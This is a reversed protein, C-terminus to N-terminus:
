DMGYETDSYSCTVDDSYLDVEDSDDSLDDFGLLV